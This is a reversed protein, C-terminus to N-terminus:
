EDPQAKKALETFLALESDTLKSLDLKQPPAEQEGEIRGTISELAKLRDSDKEGGLALLNYPTM